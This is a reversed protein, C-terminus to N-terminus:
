LAYDLEIEFDNKMLDIIKENKEHNKEPIEIKIRWVGNNFKLSKVGEFRNGFIVEFIEYIAERTLIIKDFKKKWNKAMAKKLKTDLGYDQYTELLSEIHTKIIEEEYDM